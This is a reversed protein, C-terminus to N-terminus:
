WTAHLGLTAGSPSFGVVPTTAAQPTASQSGGTVMLVVATIAGAVGVTLAVTTIPALTGQAAHVADFGEQSTCIRNTACDREITSRKGLLLVGTVTGTVLGAAGIGGAVYVWPNTHTGNAQTTEPVAGAPQPSSDAPPTWSGASRVELVTSKREGPAIDIRQEILPGDTARTTFVHPGPDVATAVGFLSAAFDDGDLTVVVNPPAFTPLRVTLWAVQTVLRTRETRSIDARAQQQPKEDAPMSEYVALFRDYLSVASAYKGARSYCEALTFLTGPRADVDLSRKILACGLKYRGAKM